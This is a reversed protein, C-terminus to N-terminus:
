VGLPCWGLRASRKGSPRHSALDCSLSHVVSQLTLPHSTSRTTGPGHELGPGVGAHSTPEQDPPHSAEPFAWPRGTGDRTSCALPLGSPHIAQVRTSAEYFPARMISPSFRTSLVLRPLAAPAPQARGETRSPCRRGRPKSPVWGPRLEHTRFATVGDLDPRYHEGPLGVTLLAWNRPPFRIVSFCFAPPQFAVPFRSAIATEEPRDDRIVPRQTLTEPQPGTVDSGAPLDEPRRRASEMVPQRGVPIHRGTHSIDTTDGTAARPDGAHSSLLKADAGVSTQGGSIRKM